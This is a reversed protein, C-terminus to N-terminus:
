SGSRLLETGNRHLSVQGGTGEADFFFHIRDKRSLLLVEPKAPRSGPADFVTLVDGTYVVPTSEPNKLDWAWVVPPLTKNRLPSNALILIQEGDYEMSVVGYPEGEHRLDLVVYNFRPADSFIQDVTSSLILAKGGVLPARLGLFVNGDGDIALGEIQAVELKGDENISEPIGQEKFFSRISDRLLRTARLVKGDLSLELFLWRQPEEDGDKANSQTTTLYLKKKYIAAGELDELMKKTIEIPQSDDCKGSWVKVRDSCPRADVIKMPNSQKSRYTAEKESYNFVFIGAEDDDVIYAVDGDTTGGSAEDVEVLNSKLLINADEIVLDQRAIEDLQEKKQILQIVQSLVAISILIFALIVAKQIKSTIKDWVGVLTSLVALVALAIAIRM